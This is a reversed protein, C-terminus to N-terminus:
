NVVLNNFANLMYVIFRIIFFTCANYNIQLAISDGIYHDVLQVFKRFQLCRVADVINGQYFATRPGEVKALQNGLENFEPHLYNNTAGIEFKAFRLFFGMYQLTIKNRQIM